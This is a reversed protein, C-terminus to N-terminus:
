AKLKNTTDESLDGRMPVDVANETYLENLKTLDFKPKKLIRIKRIYVNQLPFVHACDKILQKGISDAIFLKVLEKFEKSTIEQTLVDSMIKRIQKIQSSQAYCTKKVQKERRKTFAIFFVRLYYGDTSKADVHGEVLSQWKRILMCLADRTFSMGHFNTYANKGQVDEIALKIKRHAFDENEQLDALSCEMVRGKIVDSAIKGGGTKNVCTRGINRRTFMSPTRLEFWEKKALPDTAKKRSGKRWKTVRKNKGATM